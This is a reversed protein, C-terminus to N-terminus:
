CRDIEDCRGFLGFLGLFGRADVVGISVGVLMAGAMIGHAVPGDASLVAKYPAILSRSCAFFVCPDDDFLSSSFVAKAEGTCQGALLCPLWPLFGTAFLPLIYICARVVHPYTIKVFETHLVPEIRFHERLGQLESVRFWCPYGFEITCCQDNSSGEFMFLRSNVLSAGQMGVCNGVNTM